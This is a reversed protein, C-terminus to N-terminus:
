GKLEVEYLEHDEIIRQVINNEAALKYSKSIVQISFLKVLFVLSILIIFARIYLKRSDM